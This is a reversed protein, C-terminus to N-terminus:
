KKRYKKAWAKIPMILKGLGDQKLEMKYEDYESLVQLSDKNENWWKNFDFPKKGKESVNATVDGITMQGSKAVMAKWVSQRLTEGKVSQVNYDSAWKLIQDFPANKIAKLPVRSEKTVGKEKEKDGGKAAKYEAETYYYKYNGKAGERKFYKHSRAKMLEEKLESSRLIEQINM